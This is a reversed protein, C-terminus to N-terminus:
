LIWICAWIKSVYTYSYMWVRFNPGLECGVPVPCCTYCNLVHVWSHSNIKQGFETKMERQFGIGMTRGFVVAFWIIANSANGKLRNEGTPIKFHWKLIQILFICALTWNKKKIKNKIHFLIREEAKCYCRYFYGCVIITCMTVSGNRLRAICVMWLDHM